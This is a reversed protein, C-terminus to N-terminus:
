HGREKCVEFVFYCRFLCDIYCYTYICTYYRDKREKLKKMRMMEEENM